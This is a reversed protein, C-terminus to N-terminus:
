AGAKGLERVCADRLTGLDQEVIGRITRDDVDDYQHRLVNGLGRVNRWPIGPEREEIEPGLKKVAESIRELCREVADRTKDDFSAHQPIDRVHARVRDINAIIDRLQRIPVESPMSPAPKRLRGFM